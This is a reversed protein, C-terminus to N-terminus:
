RRNRARLGAAAAGAAGALAAAALGARVPPHTALWTSASREFAILGFGDEVREDDAMPEFLADPDADTRPEDTAQVAFGIRSLVADVLRPSLAQVTMLATAGGGVVLDRPGHEAAYLIADAVVRPAYVPPVAAPKVGLRTRAKDFFPTNIAAPMVNTVRIPVGDHALEVRLAELFGEAGHKAASYAAQLPFARRAVVSTVHVLAGRGERRLHPLAALAGHVQGLLTVEVVRRFEEPTTDEVRAYVANGPLHVWTDLRGYEAVARDAVARVQAFDAVEAPVAVARGGSRTLEDVLSTLAPVSRAAVVVSAGAAALRRATERGIGTSAGMVVVVQERLPKLGTM